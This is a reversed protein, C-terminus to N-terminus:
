LVTINYGQNKLREIAELDRKKKNEVAKGLHGPDISELLWEWFKAFKSHTGKKHNMAVVYSLTDDEDGFLHCDTGKKVMILNNIPSLSVNAFQDQSLAVLAFYEGVRILGAKWKWPLVVYYLTTFIYAVVTLIRIPLTAVILLILGILFKKM